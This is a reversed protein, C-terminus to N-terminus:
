LNENYVNDWATETMQLDTIKSQFRDDVDKNAQKKVFLDLTAKFEKKPTFNIEEATESKEFNLEDALRCIDSQFGKMNEIGAWTEDVDAVRVQKGTIKIEVGKQKMADLYIDLMDLKGIAALDDIIQLLKKFTPTVRDPFKEDPDKTLPDDDMWGSGRYYAYDKCRIMIPKEIGQAKATDKAVMGMHKSHLKKEALIEASDELLELPTIMGSM